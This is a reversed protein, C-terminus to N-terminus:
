ELDSLHHFKRVRSPGATDAVLLVTDAQRICVKSWQTASPDAEYLVLRYAEEM